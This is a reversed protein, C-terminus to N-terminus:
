ILSGGDKGGVKELQIRTLELVAALDEASLNPILKIFNEYVARTSALHRNQRYKEDAQVIINHVKQPDRVASVDLVFHESNTQIIINGYGFVNAFVGKKRISIDKIDTYSVSTVVEDFLSSRQVDVIRESTIIFINVHNYFWVRFIIFLGALMGLAFIVDGWWSFSLLKFMFFSDAFLITLGVSYKWFYTLAYREVVSLIQENERLHIKKAISM